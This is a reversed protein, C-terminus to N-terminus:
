VYRQYVRKSMGLFSAQGERNLMGFPVKYNAEAYEIRAEPEAFALMLSHAEQRKLQEALLFHLLLQTDGHKVLLASLARGDMIYVESDELFQYTYPSKEDLFLGHTPIVPQGPNVLMAVADAGDAQQRVVMAGDKILLLERALQGEGIWISSKRCATQEFSARFDVLFRQSLKAQQNIRDVIREM